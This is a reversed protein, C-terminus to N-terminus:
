VQTHVKAMNIPRSSIKVRSTTRVGANQRLYGSPFMPLIAVALVVVGLGGIWHMFTRWFNISLPLRDLGSLVTAGTATRGSVAEFYADTWSLERIHLYLPLAGFAPLLSWILAVLLCSERVRKERQPRRVSLSLLAGSAITIFVAEDYAGHAGDASLWSLSLPVLMLFGFGLILIGLVFLVPAFRNIM